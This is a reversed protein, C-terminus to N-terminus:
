VSKSIIFLDDAQLYQGENVNKSNVEEFNTYKKIAM